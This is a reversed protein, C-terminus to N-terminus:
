YLWGKISNESNLIIGQRRFAWCMYSVSVFYSAPLRNLKSIKCGLLTTEGGFGMPGIKLSNSLKVIEKELKMLVKDPNTDDLTRLLQEKSNLYGNARDGGITVGIIGPGCGKGQASNVADLIVKKVGGLDRGASLPAFPLAYQAGVNESGGGKMMLRIEISKKKHQFFHIDPHGPGVNTGDNVGTIPDVSNERLLGVKTARKIAFVADKKFKIQDFGIPQSVFFLLSGTDQCLPLQRSRAVEINEQIFDMAYKAATGSKERGRASKIVKVVDDPLTSSTKEILKFISNRVDNDKFLFHWANM